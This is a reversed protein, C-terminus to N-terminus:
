NYGGRGDEPEDGGRRCPANYGGRGDEPEDGGRKNRGTRNYGGRGDDPTDDDGRMNILPSITSATKNYGGRGFNTASFSTNSTIVAMTDINPQYNTHSPSSLNRTSPASFAIPISKLIASFYLHQTQIFSISIILFSLLSIVIGIYENPDGLKAAM